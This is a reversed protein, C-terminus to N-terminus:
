NNFTQPDPEPGQGSDPEGERRDPQLEGALAQGEEADPEGAGEREGRPEPGADPLGEPWSARVLEQFAVETEEDNAEGDIRRLYRWASFFAVALGFLIGIATWQLAANHEAVPM